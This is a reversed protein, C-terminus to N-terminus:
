RLISKIAMACQLHNHFTISIEYFFSGHKGSVFISIGDKKKQNDGRITKKKRSEACKGRRPFLQVGFRYLECSEMTLVGQPNRVLNLPRHSIKDFVVGLPLVNGQYSRRRWVSAGFKVRKSGNQASLYVCASNRIQTLTM